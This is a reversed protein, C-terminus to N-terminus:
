EPKDPRITQGPEEQEQPNNTGYQKDHALNCRLYEQKLTSRNTFNNADLGRFHQCFFHQLSFLFQQDSFTRKDFTTLTFTTKNEAL